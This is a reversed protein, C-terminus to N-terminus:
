GVGDAWRELAEWHAYGDVVFDAPASGPVLAAVVAGVAPLLVLLVCARLPFPKIVSGRDHREHLATAVDLAREGIRSGPGSATLRGPLPGRGPPWRRRRRTILVYQPLLALGVVRDLTVASARWAGHWLALYGHRGVVAWGAAVLAVAVAGPRFAIPLSTSLRVLSGLAMEAVNM